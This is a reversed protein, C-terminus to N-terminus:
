NLSYPHEGALQVFLDAPAIVASKLNDPVVILPTGGFFDYALTHSLIFDRQKQSYTAHVFTYGSAGLVAVFIQAKTIEGTRQNVIPITLGSYDVFVKEGSIHVQKMSPNIKNLFKSYYERFQTSQRSAFLKAMERM